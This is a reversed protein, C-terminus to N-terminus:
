SGMMMMMTSADMNTGITGATADSARMRIVSPRQWVKLKKDM